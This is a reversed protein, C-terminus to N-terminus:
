TPSDFEAHNVAPYYNGDDPAEVQSITIGAGVPLSDGLADALETHGVDDKWDASTTAAIPFLLLFCALLASRGVARRGVLGVWHFGIWRLGVWLLGISKFLGNSALGGSQGAPVSLPQQGPLCTRRFHCNQEGFGM